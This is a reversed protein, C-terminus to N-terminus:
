EKVAGLNLGIVFYRQVFPYLIIMPIAATIIVANKLTNAYVSVDTSTGKDDTLVMERLKVQFNKLATDQIYITFEFWNNWYGVMYFLGIAALAPKCMPLLIRLFIALPTAGDIAASEYISINIDEFFNKMLILHYTNIALPLIVSWVTNTLHINRMLMYTPVLGGNFMMTFMIMWVFFKRGPLDRRTLVFAGTSTLALALLTGVITVFCSIGFSRLLSPETMIRLYANLSIKQPLLRFDYGGKADLSDVFIKLLPIVMIFTIIIMFITNLFLFTKKSYNGSILSFRNM